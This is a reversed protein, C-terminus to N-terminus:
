ICGCGAPSVKARPRLITAPRGLRTVCGEGRKRLERPIWGVENPELCDERLEPEITGNIRGLERSKECRLRHMRVRPCPDAIEEFLVVRSESLRVAHENREGVLNLFRIACFDELVEAEILA